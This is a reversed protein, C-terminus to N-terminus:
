TTALDLLTPPHFMRLHELLELSCLLTQSALQWYHRAWLVM